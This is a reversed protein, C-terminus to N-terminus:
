TYTTFCGWICTTGRRMNLILSLMIHIYTPSKTLLIQTTSTSSVLMPDLGEHGYQRQSCSCLYTITTSTPTAHFTASNVINSEIYNKRGLKLESAGLLHMHKIYTKPTSLDWSDMPSIMKAMPVNEPFTM